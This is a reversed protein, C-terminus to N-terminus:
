AEECIQKLIALAKPWTDNMSQEYQFNTPSDISRPNKHWLHTYANM